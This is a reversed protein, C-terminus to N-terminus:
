HQAPRDLDLRLGDTAFDVPGSFSRGISTRIEAESAEMAPSLHGLLLRGVGARAALEGIQGPPTHLTYLVPPSKPPDLVVTNFVLLDCGQALRLLAAHGQADIDGSFCLSGAGALGVRYLVAPADRHHGSIADVTLGADDLVRVPRSARVDRTKFRIHGAFDRVYAFVGSPGFLQDIFRSTSPFPADDGKGGPSGAPGIVRFEIDRRAAIARAKVLGPLGGAHDIHLHTLLVTDIGAPSLGSEGLRVFSGPGADVLLRPQGDVLVLYASGARGTAGPGGSGLVVLGLRHADTPPETESQVKPRAAAALSLLCSALGCLLARRLPLATPRTMM